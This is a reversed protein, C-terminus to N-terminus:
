RPLMFRFSQQNAACAVSTEPRYSRAYRTKAVMAKAADGFLFPPYAILTRQRATKGDAGIDYEIRAWGEFGMQVLEMPYLSASAGSSAVTPTPGILACQQENLSTREFAAAATALDGRAAAANAQSLLANIKLPHHEPLDRADAVAALLVPADALVSKRDSQYLQVIRLRLTAAGVPEAAVEPRALLARLAADQRAIERRWDSEGSLDRGHTVALMAAGTQPAGLAAALAVARDAMVVRDAYLSLPSQALRLNADLAAADSGGAAARWRAVLEAERADDGPAAVGREELWAATATALPLDIDGGEAARTCRLEVRTILRYFAPIAKAAEPSWSWNRVARAFTLAVDRGGQAFVPEVRTVVGDEDLSLEIVASSEPTLGPVEGCQPVDIKEARAFPVDKLRGAGTYALYLRADDMNKKLLATQALDYRTAVDDLTTKSTLGGNNTLARKLLSDAEGTRGAAMLARAAAIQTAAIQAKTVNPMAQTLQLAEASYRIAAGDGDFRTLVALQVLPLVREVGTSLALARNAAVIGADYDLRALALRALQRYADRAEVGFTEPKGALTEIGRRIAVEAEDPRGLKALCMGRRVTIAAAVTANRKAAASGSLADFAAVAEACRGESWAKTAADFAVQTTPAAPAQAATAAPIAILSLM